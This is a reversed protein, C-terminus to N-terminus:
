EDVLGDVSWGVVVVMTQSWYMRIIPGNAEVCRLSRSARDMLVNKNKVDRDRAHTPPYSHSLVFMIPM